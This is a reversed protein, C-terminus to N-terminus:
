TGQLVHLDYLKGNASKTYDCLTSLAGDVQSDNSEALETFYFNAPSAEKTPENIEIILLGISPQSM